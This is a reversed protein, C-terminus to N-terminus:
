CFSAGVSLSTSDPSFRDVVSEDSEPIEVNDDEPIRRSIAPPVYLETAGAM